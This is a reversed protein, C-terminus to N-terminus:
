CGHTMKAGKPWTLRREGEIMASFRLALAKWGAQNRNWQEPAAAGLREWGSQEVHVRTREVELASFTIAVDTASEQSLGLYWRYALLRPPQWVTVVGWEHEDGQASREYIRGGVCGEFVIVAPGGSLTHDAPWWTSIRETWTSFAHDVGCDVEFSFKLADTM